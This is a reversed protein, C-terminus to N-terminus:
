NIRSNRAEIQLRNWEQSWAIHNHVAQRRQVALEKVEEDRVAAIDVDSFYLDMSRAPARIGVSDVNLIGGVYNDQGGDDLGAVVANWQSRSGLIYPYFFDLASRPMPDPLILTEFKILYWVLLVNFFFITNTSIYSPIFFFCITNM